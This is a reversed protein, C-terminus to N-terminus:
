QTLDMYNLGEAKFNYYDEVVGSSKLHKAVDLYVKFWTKLRTHCVYVKQNEGAEKKEIKKRDAMFETMNATRKLSGTANYYKKVFENRDM